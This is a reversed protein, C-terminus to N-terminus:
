KEGTRRKMNAALRGSKGSTNGGALFPERNLGQANLQRHPPVYEREDLTSAEARPAANMVAIAEQATMSTEFALHEALAERGQAENAKMIAKFRSKVAATMDNQSMTEEKSKSAQQTKPPHSSSWNQSAALAVLREPANRFKRYDFAAVVHGAQESTHDAFGASVAQQPTFWTEEKMMERCEAPTKGSKAAYVRAYGTAVAELADITKSHDASNGHTFGAPDHIMMVSGATMSVNKGAMAILSAASAAIGEVVVDVRGKRSKLLAYIATGETAVGGPSNIYITLAATENVRALAYFVEDSSFGDELSQMGESLVAGSLRISNGDVIVGM